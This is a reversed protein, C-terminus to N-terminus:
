FVFFLNRHFKPASTLPYSPALSIHSSSGVRRWRMGDWGMGAAVEGGLEQWFLYASIVVAGGSGVLASQMPPVTPVLSPRAEKSTTTATKTNALKGDGLTRDTM